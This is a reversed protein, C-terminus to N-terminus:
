APLATLEVLTSGDVGVPLSRLRSAIERAAAEGIAPVALAYFKEELARRQRPLERDSVPAREPRDDVVEDGNAFRVRVETRIGTERRPHVTVLVRERARVVDPSTAAEDTFGSPGTSRGALVLAAAHRVSFMAEDGTRPDEICCIDLMERTVRLEVQAISEPATGALTARLSDIAAHTGGCGPHEKFAISEVGLREGMEAAPRTADFDPALPGAFGDAAELADRPASLGEAALLAALVGAAAARGGHLPKAPTGFVAKPGGAQVVGLGLARQMAEPDLRLARGAAAAAAVSGVTATAHWGRVYHDIGAALGVTAAADYGAVLASAVEDGDLDRLGAIALVAPVVVVSPHGRMWFSVDDYDLALAATGNALAAGQPGAKLSTGVITCPGEGAAVSAAARATPHAAGALAAGIWDLLALRVRELQAEGLDPASASSVRRALESTFGGASM